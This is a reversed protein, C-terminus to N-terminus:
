LLPGAAALVAAAITVLRVALLWRTACTAAGACARRGDPDVVRVSPVVVRTVPTRAFLHIAIPILVLLLGALAAPSRWDISM